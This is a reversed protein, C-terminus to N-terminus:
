QPVCVRSGFLRWEWKEGRVSSAQNERHSVANEGDQFLQANPIQPWMKKVFQPMAPPESPLSWLWGSFLDALSLSAAMPIAVIQFTLTIENVILLWM